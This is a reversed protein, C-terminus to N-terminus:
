RTEASYLAGIVVSESGAYFVPSHIDASAIVRLM